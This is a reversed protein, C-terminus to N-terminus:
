YSFKELELGRYLILLNEPDDSKPHINQRILLNASAESVPIDPLVHERYWHLYKMLRFADFWQFFRKKFSASDSTHKRCETLKQIIGNAEFWEKLHSAITSSVDSWLGKYLLDLQDTFAKLEYFAQYHYTYYEKAGANIMDGVAKGTGFPVRKSIRPSPYVITDRILGCNGKSIFKQLFYFDEGAKRTNMGGYRCYASARVAMSSGVTHYAFPLGVFQQICIYYRLHLEYSIISAYVSAPYERGIIPHEFHISVADMSKDSEFARHIAKFYNKDVTCDADLCSIVADKSHSSLIRVALDMGIKRAMGVGAFKYPLGLALVPIITLIDPFNEAISLTEKYANLNKTRVEPSSKESDNFVVIVGISLRYKDADFISNFLTTLSVEDYSPIVTIIDFYPYEKQHIFTKNAYHEIYHQYIRSIESLM